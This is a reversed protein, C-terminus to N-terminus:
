PKLSASACLRALVPEEAPMSGCIIKVIEPKAFEPQPHARHVTMKACVDIRTDLSEKLAPSTAQGMSPDRLYMLKGCNTVVEQQVTKVDGGASVWADLRQLYLDRLRDATAPPVSTQGLASSSVLLLPLLVQLRM